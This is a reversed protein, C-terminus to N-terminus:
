SLGQVVEIHHVKRTFHAEDKKNPWDVNMDMESGLRKIRDKLNGQADNVGAWIPLFVVDDAYAEGFKEVRARINAVVSAAYLIRERLKDADKENNIEPLQSL